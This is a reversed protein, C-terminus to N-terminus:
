LLNEIAANKASFFLIAAAGKSAAAMELWSYKQKTLTYCGRM